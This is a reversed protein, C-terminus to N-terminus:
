HASATAHQQEQTKHSQEWQHRAAIAAERDTGRYLTIRRGDERYYAEYEGRDKRYTVGLHGTMGRGQVQNDLLQIIRGITCISVAMTPKGAPHADLAKELRQVMDFATYEEIPKDM